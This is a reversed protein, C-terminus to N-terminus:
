ADAVDKIKTPMFQGCWDSQATEPWSGKKYAPVSMPSNVRCQAYKKQTSGNTNWYKCNVCHGNMVNPTIKNMFAM